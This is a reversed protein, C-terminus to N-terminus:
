EWPRVSGPDVVGLPTGNGRDNQCLSKHSGSGTVTKIEDDVEVILIMIEDIMSGHFVKKLLSHKRLPVLLQIHMCHPISSFMTQQHFSDKIGQLRLQISAIFPMMTTMM